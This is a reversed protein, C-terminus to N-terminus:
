NLAASHRWPFAACGAPKPFPLHLRGTMEPPCFTDQSSLGFVDAAGAALLDQHHDRFPM